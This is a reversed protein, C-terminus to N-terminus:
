PQNHHIQPPVVIKIFEPASQRLANQIVIKDIFKSLITVYIAKNFFKLPLSLSAFGRILHKM